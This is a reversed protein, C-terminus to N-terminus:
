PPVHRHWDSGCALCFEKWFVLYQTGLMGLMWTDIVTAYAATYDYLLLMGSCVLEYM